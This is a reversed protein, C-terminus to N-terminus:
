GASAHVPAVVARPASTTRRRRPACCRRRAASSGRQAGVGVAAGPGVLLEVHRREERDVTAVLHREGVRVTSSAVLQADADGQPGPRGAHHEPGRHVPRDSASPATTGRRRRQTVRGGAPPDDRQDAQLADAEPQAMEGDDRSGGRGPAPPLRRHRAGVDAGANTTRIRTAAPGHCSRAGAGSACAPACRSRGCRQEVADHRAQRHPDLQGVAPDIPPPPGSAGSM